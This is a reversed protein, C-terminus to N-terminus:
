KSRNYHERRLKAVDLKLYKFNRDKVLAELLRAEAELMERRAQAALQQVAFYEETKSCWNTLAEDYM